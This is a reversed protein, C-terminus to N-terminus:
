IYMSVRKKFLASLISFVQPTQIASFHRLLATVLALSLLMLFVTLVTQYDAPLLSFELFPKRFNCLDLCCYNTYEM